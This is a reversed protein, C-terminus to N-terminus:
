ISAKLLYPQSDEEDRTVTFTSEFITTYSNATSCKIADITHFTVAAKQNEHDKCGVLIEDDEVSPGVYLSVDAFLNDIVSAQYFSFYDGVYRHEGALDEIDLQAFTKPSMIAYFHFDGESTIENNLHRMMQNIRDLIAFGRTAGHPSSFHVEIAVHDRLYQFFFDEREYGLKTSAHEVMHQQNVARSSHSFATNSITTTSYAVIPPPALSGKPILDYASNVPQVNVWEDMISCLEMDLWFRLAQLNFDMSEANQVSSPDTAENILDEAYKYLIQESVRHDTTILQFLLDIHDKWFDLDYLTSHTLTNLNSALTAM